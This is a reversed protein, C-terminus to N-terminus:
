LHATFFLNFFHIWGAEPQSVNGSAADAALAGSLGFDAKEKPPVEEEEDEGEGAPASPCDRALHGGKGCKFCGKGAKPDEGPKGWVARGGALADGSAGEDRGRKKGPVSSMASAM